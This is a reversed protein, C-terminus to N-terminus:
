LGFEVEDPSVWIHEKNIASYIGNYIHVVTEADMWKDISM